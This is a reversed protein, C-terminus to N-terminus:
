QESLEQQLKRDQEDTMNELSGKPIAHDLHPSEKEAMIVSAADEIARAALKVWFLRMLATWGRM